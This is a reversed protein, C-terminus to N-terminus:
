GGAVPPIFVVTDQDALPASWSSFANNVIVRLQDRTFGFGHRAALEDYLANPDAATTSVAEESCGRQERLAAFYLVKVTRNTSAEPM